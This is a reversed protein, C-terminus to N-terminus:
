AQIRNVIGTTSYGDLFPIIKVEGGYSQVYPAGVITEFTYDGGKVLVDPQLTHLLNEPTDEEFIIVADIYTHCALNFARSLEDVIPRTEGKLRKVSSDSNVAVILRNGFEAAELLFTNHGRHILDFCGNTFVVKKSLMRWQNRLRALDDIAYIKKQIIEIKNM